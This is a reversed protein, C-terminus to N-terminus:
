EGIVGYGLFMMLTVGTFQSLIGILGVAALARPILAFRLLSSYFVFIWAGVAVLQAVHAWRRAAAVAAGTLQYLGSDTGGAGAYQQSFSLMSMAAAGHVADLVCSVACVVLFWIATAGGYRRFVPLSTIGLSITLAGGIFALLVAARIQFSNEAAATLFGPSGAALPRMLIFPLTLGAALQLLLLVGVARGVSKASKM